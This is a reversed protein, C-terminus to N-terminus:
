FLEIIDENKYETGIKMYNFTKELWKETEKFKHIDKSIEPGLFKLEEETAILFQHFNSFNESLEQAKTKGVHLIGLSSYFAQLSQHKSKEISELLNALAKEGLWSPNYLIKNLNNKIEFFDYPYHLMNMQMFFEVQKESIGAIDLGNKSAFHLLRNKRQEFCDWGAKCIDENLISGCSPCKIPLELKNFSKEVIESIMPIVEGAMEIKVIDGKTYKRAKLLEFNNLTARKIKRNKIETEKLEAVPTLKGFRGVQYTINEIETIAFPNDFKIAFAYRPAVATEGLIEYHALNNAKFVIGDIEFPFANKKGEVEDFFAEMDEITKCEKYTSITNLHLTEFLKRYDIYTKITELKPYADELYLNHAVFKIYKMKSDYSKKLLLGATANRPNEIVGKEIYAEFRIEIIKEALENELKISNPINLYQKLHTIDEGIIGNGRTAINTLKGKNYNAIVSVGDVKLEGIFPFLEAHEDFKKLKKDLSIIFDTIANKGFNHQLSLIKQLHKSPTQSPPSGINESIKYNLDSEAITLQKKYFDYVEDSVIPKGEEYAKNYKLIKEQLEKLTHNM